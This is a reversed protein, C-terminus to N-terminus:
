AERTREAMASSSTRCKMHRKNFYYVSVFYCVFKNFVNQVRQLCKNFRRKQDLDRAFILIDLTLINKTANSLNHETRHEFWVSNM